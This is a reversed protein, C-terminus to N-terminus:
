DALRNMGLVQGRVAEPLSDLDNLDTLVGVAAFSSGLLNQVLEAKSHGQRVGLTRAMSRLQDRTALSALAKQALKQVAPEMETVNKITIM